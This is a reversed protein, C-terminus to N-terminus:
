SAADEQKESDPSRLASAGQKPPPLPEASLSAYSELSLILRELLAIGQPLSGEVFGGLRRARGEYEEIERQLVPQWRRCTEVKDLAEELRLKALRLAKEQHTCDPEQDFLRALKRRELDAKASTVDDECKRVTKEWSRKQDALWDITRRVEMEVIGLADQTEEAFTCLAGRFDELAAIENVQASESM